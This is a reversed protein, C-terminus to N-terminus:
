NGGGLSDLAAVFETWAVPQGHVPAVTRVNLGLREAQNYLSRM